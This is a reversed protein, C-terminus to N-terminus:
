FDFAGTSCCVAGHLYAIVPDVLIGSQHSHLMQIRQVEAKNTGLHLPFSKSTSQKIESHSSSAVCSLYIYTKDCKCLFQFDSSVGKKIVGGCVQMGCWVGPLALPKRAFLTSSRRCAVAFPVLSPKNWTSIRFFFVYIDKNKSLVCPCLFVSINSKCFYSVGLFIQIFM